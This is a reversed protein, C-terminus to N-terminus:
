TSSYKAGEAKGRRWARVNRFQWMPPAKHREDNRGVRFGHLYWYTVEQGDVTEALQEPTLRKTAGQRPHTEQLDHNLLSIKYASLVAKGSNRRVAGYYIRSISM